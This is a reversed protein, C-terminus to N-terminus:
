GLHGTRAQQRLIASTYPRIDIESKLGPAVKTLYVQADSVKSFPVTSNNGNGVMTVTINKAETCNITVSTTNVKFTVINDAIALETATKSMKDHVFTYLTHAADNKGGGLLGGFLDMKAAAELRAGRANLAEMEMLTMTAIEHQNTTMCVRGPGPAGRKIAPCIGAKANFRWADLCGHVAADEAAGLADAEAPDPADLGVERVADHACPAERRCEM